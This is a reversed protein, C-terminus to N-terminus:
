INNQGLQFHFEIESGNNKFEMKDALKSILFIGRGDPKEINEPATPDPINNYDFGSGQDKIKFVVEKEDAEVDLEVEKEPNNKNGHVIANIVAETVCIMVEGQKEISIIQEETLNDILKEVENIYQLDSKLKLKREM